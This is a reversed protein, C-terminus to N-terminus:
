TNRESQCGIRRMTFATLRCTNVAPWSHHRKCVRRSPKREIGAAAGMALVAPHSEFCTHTHKHTPQPHTHPHTYAHAHMWVHLTNIPSANEEWMQLDSMRRSAEGRKWWAAHFLPFYNFPSYLSTSFYLHPLFYLSVHFLFLSLSIALSWAKVLTLFALSAHPATFARGTVM